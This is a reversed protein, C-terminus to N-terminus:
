YMESDGYLTQVYAIQGLHYVFNWNPYDMIEAITFDRGGGFPLWKTETLREDPVQAYLTFLKELNANCVQECDEVTVWQAAEAKMAAMSEESWEPLDGGAVLDYAWVPCKALERLQDLVSRGSDIPKWDLKDAPVKKAYKFAESAAHKTTAIIYDQIRM